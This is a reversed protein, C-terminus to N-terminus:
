RAPQLVFAFDLCAGSTHVLTAVEPQQDPLQDQRAALWYIDPVAYLPSELGTRTSGYRYQCLIAVGSPNWDVAAPVPPWLNTPICLLALCFLVPTKSAAVYLRKVPCMSSTDYGEICSCSWASM